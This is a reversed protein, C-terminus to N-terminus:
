TMMMLYNDNDDNYDGGGDYCVLELSCFRGQFAFMQEATNQAAQLNIVALQWQGQNSVCSDMEHVGDLNTRIADTSGHTSRKGYGRDNLHEQWRFM